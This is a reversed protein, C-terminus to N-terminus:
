RRLSRPPANLTMPPLPTNDIRFVGSSNNSFSLRVIFSGADNLIRGYRGSGRQANTTDEFTISNITREEGGQEEIHTVPM